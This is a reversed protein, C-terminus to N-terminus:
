KLCLMDDKYDKLGLELTYKPMFGLEKQAKRIDLYCDEGEETRWSEHLIKSKGFVKVITEALANISVGQGIGINYTGGSPYSIANAIASVADKVYLLDREVKGKGYITIDKGDNALDIFKTVVYGSNQRYGYIYSFRLIVCNLGFDQMAKNCFMEGIYKSIGYVGHQGCPYTPHTEDVPLYQPKGYVMQTSAYIVKKVKHLLCWDIVNQTGLGNVNIYQNSLAIRSAKPVKGALHVIADFNHPLWRFEERRTIDLKYFPVEHGKGTLAKVLYKGVFGNAGTVLVKM